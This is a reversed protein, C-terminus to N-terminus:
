SQYFIKVPNRIGLINTAEKVPAGPIPPKKEVFRELTTASIIDIRNEGKKLYPSLDFKYTPVIQIGVSQGNVFVEVGELLDNIELVAEKSDISISTSYRIYGGFKPYEEEVVDPVTVEKEDEFSPYDLSKCVSRSFSSLDLQRDLKSLKEEVSEVTEYRSGDAYIIFSKRPEIKINVVLQDNEKQGSLKYAKNEWADYIVANEMYPLRLEGEYTDAAENIFFYIDYDNKYHMCRIYRGDSSLKVEKLEAVKDALAEFPIVKANLKTDGNLIIEPIRNIAYVKGGQGVFENLKETVENRIVPYEPIIVVDYEGMGVKLKNGEIKFDYEGDYFVDSPLIDFDIQNEILVRHVLYEEMYNLCSWEAEGSYLVGVKRIAKGGTILDCIRNVYLMLKGFHRYQPNNGHAYFHPPCDPDPFAKPSFAHPVYNNVGRVMFHDILYKELYVGAEWGYNGFIECMANGKKLPDIDAASAALKALTFHYFVGNRINGTLSSKIFADEKQPLVQGGIDDIGAWSQGKLGRFYHGLSSGTLAHKSNDEISHGIYKVGHARCWDGIQYSFDNKVCNTVVDMYDIRCQAKKAEDKVETFIYALNSLFDDGWKEKLLVDVEKSYPFDDCEYLKMRPEYLHGNGIEPEDSFFGELVNGFYQKYHDYHAEYVTDIFVKVSNKDCMNIYNRHPGRDRTTYIGYVINNGELMDGDAIEKIEDNENVAVFGLCHDDNFLPVDEMVFEEIRTKVHPPCLLYDDEVKFRGSLEGIKKYTIFQRHLETRNGALAGNAFGSPFHSDDLIWVKMKRKKAEDFIIDLDKWWGEGAFDPHPRSEICVAKINANDIVEMYKRLTEEEEGHQWFFPLIHNEYEGNLLSELKGM